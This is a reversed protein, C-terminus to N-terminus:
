PTKPSLFNKARSTLTVYVLDVKVQTSGPLIHGLRDDSRM